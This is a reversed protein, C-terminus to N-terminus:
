MQQVCKGVGSSTLLFHRDRHYCGNINSSDFSYHLKVKSTGKIKETGKMECRICIAATFPFFSNSANCPLM